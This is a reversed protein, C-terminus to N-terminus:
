QDTPLYHLIPYLLQAHSPDVQKWRKGDKSFYRYDWLFYSRSSGDNYTLQLQYQHEGPSVIADKQLPRLKSMRLYNLIPSLKEPQRYVYRSCQGGHYFAVSIGTVYHYDPAQNKEPGKGPFLCFLFLVLGLYGWKQIKGM